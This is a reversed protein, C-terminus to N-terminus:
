QFELKRENSEPDVGSPNRIKIGVKAGSAPRSALEALFIALRADSVWHTPHEEGDILVTAGDLFNRGVVEVRNAGAPM